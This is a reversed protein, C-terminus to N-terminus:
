SRPFGVLVSGFHLCHPAGGGHWPRFGRLAAERLVNGRLRYITAQSFIKTLINEVPLSEKLDLLWEVARAQAYEVGDPLLFYPGTVRGIARFALNGDSVIVLDGVEMENKFRNVADIGFDADKTDKDEQRFKAAIAQRDDCGTFDLGLGYGIRIQRNEICQDYIGAEDSRRGLSM